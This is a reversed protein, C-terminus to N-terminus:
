QKINIKDGEKVLQIGECLIKENKILGSDIVFLHPLRLSSHVIRKELVNSDGIVFVCINDQEEFTWTQPIIIKNNIKSSIRVKGTANHKLIREPNPFKARFAITGTKDDFDGDITEIIGKHKYETGDALILSVYNSNKFSNSKIHKLYDIESIKFYVLMYENNSITTLLEGEEILSGIKNPIRNIVGNFPAKIKTFSLNTNSQTVQIKEKEVKAKLIDLNIAALNYETKSIYNKDYLKKTSQLEVEALKLESLANKLSANSKQFNHLLKKNDIVFLDQGKKVNQGEDALVKNVFGSIRTRIEVNQFAKINAVYYKNYITDTTQVRSINFKETTVLKKNESSCRIWIIFIFASTIYIIKSM